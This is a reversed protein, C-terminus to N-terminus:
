RDDHQNAYFILIVSIERDKFKVYLVVWGPLNGSHVDNCIGFLYRCATNLAPYASSLILRLRMQLVLGSRAFGANKWMSPEFLFYPYFMM